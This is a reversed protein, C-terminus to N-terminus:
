IGSIEGTSIYRIITKAVSIRATDSLYMFKRQPLNGKRPDDSDHFAAYPVQNYVHAEDGNVVQFRNSQRLIGTDQLIRQGGGKRKGKKRAAITSKSLPAWKGDPGTEKTFHDVVDRWGKIAIVDMANSPNKAREQIMNFRKQVDLLDMKMEIM